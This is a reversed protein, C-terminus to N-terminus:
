QILKEFCLSNDMGIYQGYNPIQVYGNKKYLSVAEPQRKGTELVTTTYGLEKAWNELELLVKTALGKGRESPLTYMRKIEVKENAFPKFAGCSVGKNLNRILVVHKLEEIGNFQHYFAHEDGDQVALYHDLKDVLQKFEINGSHTRIVEM